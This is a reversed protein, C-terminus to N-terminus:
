PSDGPLGASPPQGAHVQAATRVLVSHVHGPEHKVQHHTFRLVRLGAATHTQDRRAAHAQQSPTRHYRLGDTEVILGLNPFHFDVEYGLVHAKTEPLPLDTRAVIRRFLVELDSDSLRFTHRDLLTRLRPAGPQGAHGGVATRLAEPDILDLKDAENVARELWRDPLETALDVLTQAPLTVPIRRWTGLAEAPLAARVRAKIGVRRAEHRARISVDIRGSRETGFGWHAAASRHSLVADAGCVLVAGMWWGERPIDDRGVAYVGRWLPHLRGTRVRHEISRSHFGLALLQQRTVVGYQRRM